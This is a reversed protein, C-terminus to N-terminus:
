VSPILNLQLEIDDGNVQAIKDKEGETRVLGCAVWHLLQKSSVGYKAVAEDITHWNKNLSM